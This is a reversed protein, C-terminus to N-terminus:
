LHVYQRLLGDQVVLLTIERAVLCELVRQAGNLFPLLVLLPGLVVALSLSGGNVLHHVIDVLLSFTRKGLGM